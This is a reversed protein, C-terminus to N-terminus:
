DRLCDLLSALKDIQVTGDAECVQQWLVQYDSWVHVGLSLACAKGQPGCRAADPQLLTVGPSM